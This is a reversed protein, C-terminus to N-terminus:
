SYNYIMYSYNYIMIVYNVYSYNYSYNYIMYLDLVIRNKSLVIKITLFSVLM